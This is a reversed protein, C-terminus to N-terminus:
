RSYDSLDFLLPVRKMEANNEPQSSSTEIRKEEELPLPHHKGVMLDFLMRLKQKGHSTQSGSFKMWQERMELVSPILIHFLIITISVVALPLIASPSCLRGQDINLILQEEDQIIYFHIRKLLDQGKLKTHHLTCRILPNMHQTFYPFSRQIM